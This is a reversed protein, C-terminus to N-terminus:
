KKHIYLNNRQAETKEESLSYLVWRVSVTHPNFLIFAHLSCASGKAHLLYGGVERKPSKRHGLGKVSARSPGRALGRLCSM